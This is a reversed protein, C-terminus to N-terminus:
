KLAPPFLSYQKSAKSQSFNRHKSRSKRTILSALFLSLMLPILNMVAAPILLAAFFLPHTFSHISISLLSIAILTSFIFAPQDFDRKIGSGSFRRYSAFLLFPVLVIWLFFSLFASYYTAGILQAPEYRLEPGGLGIIANHALATLGIFVPLHIRLLDRM